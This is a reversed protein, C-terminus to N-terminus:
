NVLSVKNLKINCKIKTKNQKKKRTDKPNSYTHVNALQLNTLTCYSIRYFHIKISM